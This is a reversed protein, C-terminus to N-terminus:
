GKPDMIIGLVRRDLAEVQKVTEAIDNATTHPYPASNFAQTPDVVLIDAGVRPGAAVATRIPSIIAPKM